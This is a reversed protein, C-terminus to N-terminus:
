SRKQVALIRSVQQGRHPIRYAIHQLDGPLRQSPNAYLIALGNMKLASRALAFFERPDGFARATVVDFRADFDIDDARRPDVAVNTLQMEGMAVQLFSARKRRSEMLTFHASTAAALVLGPFGAGSGLDLIECGADFRGHLLDEHSLALPMLSDIVHFAIEEPDDPHATLNMKSGWTALTVALREIRESFLTDISVPRAHLFAEVRDRV